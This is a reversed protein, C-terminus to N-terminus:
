YYLLAHLGLDAPQTAIRPLKEVFGNTEGGEEVQAELRSVRIKHGTCSQVKRPLCASFDFWHLWHLKPQTAVRPSKEM